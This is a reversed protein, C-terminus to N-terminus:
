PRPRAIKASTMAPKIAKGQKKPMTPRNTAHGFGPRYWPFSNPRRFALLSFSISADLAKVEHWWGAPIFLGEGRELTVVHRKARRPVPAYWGNAADAVTPDNPSVLTFRKKGYIQVFFVSTTDHHLPTVTGKPGLWLATGGHAIRAPDFYTRDVVVRALLREMGPAAMALSNSVLYLDRPRKARVVDDVYRGITTKEFRKRFRGEAVRVPVDGVLRKMDEPSWLKWGRAADTLVVPEANAWYRAFFEGAAPKKRREIGRGAELERRLRLHLDRRRVRDRLSTIAIETVAEHALSRPVGNTVLVRVLDRAPVGAVANEAVWAKWEGALAKAV